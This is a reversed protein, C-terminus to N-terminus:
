TQGLQQMMNLADLNEWEEVMKGGSFKVVGISRVSVTKATPKVGLFEGRHTGTFTIRYAVRDGEAIMEDTQLKFDPFGKMFQNVFDKWGKLDTTAPGGTGHYKFNPHYARDIISLDRKNYAELVNRLLSRNSESSM